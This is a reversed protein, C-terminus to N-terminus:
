YCIIPLSAKLKERYIPIAAKKTVVFTKSSAIGSSFDFSKGFLKEVVKIDSYGSVFFLKSNANSYPVRISRKGHLYFTAPKFISEFLNQKIFDKFDVQFLECRTDKNALRKKEPNLELVIYKKRNELVSYNEFMWKATIPNRSFNPIDDLSIVGNLDIGLIIFKPPNVSLKKIAEDEVLSGSYGYFQLPLSNYTSGGINLLYNEYPYILVNNKNNRALESINKVDKIGLYYNESFKYTGFFDNKSSFVELLLSVNNIKL